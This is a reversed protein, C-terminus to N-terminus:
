LAQCKWLARLQENKWRYHWILASCFLFRAGIQKSFECSDNSTVGVRAFGVTPIIFSGLM